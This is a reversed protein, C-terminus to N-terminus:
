RRFSYRAAAEFARLTNLPPLHRVVRSEMQSRNDCIYPQNSTQRLATEPDNETCEIAFFTVLIVM